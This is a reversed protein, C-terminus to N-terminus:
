ILYQNSAREFSKKHASKGARLRSNLWKEMDEHSGLIQIEAKVSLFLMRQVDARWEKEKGEEGFIESRALMKTAIRRDRETLQVLGQPDIEQKEENKNWKLRLVDSICIGLWRLSPITSSEEHALGM